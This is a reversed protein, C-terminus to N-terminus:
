RIGPSGRYAEPNCPLADMFRRVPFFRDAITGAATNAAPSDTAAATTGFMTPQSLSAVMSPTAASNASMARYPRSTAYWANSMDTASRLSVSQAHRLLPRAARDDRGDDKRDGQRGAGGHQRLDGAAAVIRRRGSEPEVDRVAREVHRPAVQRRHGDGIEAEVEAIM